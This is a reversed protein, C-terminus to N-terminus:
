LVQDVNNLKRQIFGLFAKKIDGPEGKKKAYAKFEEEVQYIDMRIGSKKILDKGSEIVHSPLFM